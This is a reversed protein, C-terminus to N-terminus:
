ATDEPQHDLPHQSIETRLRSSILYASIAGLCLGGIDAFWDALETHRNFLPQTTEDVAGLLSGLVLWKALDIRTRVFALGALLGWMGYAAFHVTKDGGFRSLDVDPQPWHTATLLLTTWLCLAIKPM